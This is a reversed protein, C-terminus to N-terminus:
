YTEVEITTYQLNIKKVGKQNFAITVESGM